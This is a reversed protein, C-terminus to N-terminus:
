AGESVWCRFGHITVATMGAVNMSIRSVMTTFTESGWMAPLGPAV